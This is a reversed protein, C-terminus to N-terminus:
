CQISIRGRVSSKSNLERVSKLAREVFHYNRHCYLNRNLYDM